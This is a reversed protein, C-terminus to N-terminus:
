SGCRYTDFRQRGEVPAGVQVVANAGAAAAQNRALSELEDKVRLPNRAYPGLGPTVAVEVQDMRTCGTPATALVRVGSAADTIPALTCASLLLGGALLLMPRLPM